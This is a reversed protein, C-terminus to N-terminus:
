TYPHVLRPTPLPFRELLIQFQKWTHTRRQARRSLWKRWTLIVHRYAKKLGDYNGRIGYYAYYGRLFNGLAKSQTRITRHRNARIRETVERMSKQFKKRSTKRKVYWNRYRDVYGWYFTFGLFDFTEKRTKPETPKPKNFDICKTKDPHISLGFREFRKPIAQYVRKADEEHEFMIVFDDAFRFIEAWGNMRPQVTEVFWKDLIEHLFINALLPSIVGGQPTGEKIRTIGGEELIRAKLWKGITRRIVGDRVRLDLIQRLQKHDITDFFAKIDVELVFGGQRAQLKERLDHVAQHASRGPRFGYSFDYFDEEYISELVMAVARQLVKDELTAIAIPRQKGGAKPVYARRLNPAKYRGSKFEELLNGLNDRWNSAYTQWTVGDVGPAGDKRTRKLAEWLWFIDINHALSTFALEPKVRATKGIRRQRTSISGLDVARTM